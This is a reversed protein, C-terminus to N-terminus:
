KVTSQAKLGDTTEEMSRSPQRDQQREEARKQMSAGMPWGNRVCRPRGDGGGDESEELGQFSRVSSSGKRLLKEMGYWRIVGRRGVWDEDNGLQVDAMGMRARACLLIRPAM